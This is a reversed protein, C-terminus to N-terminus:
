HFCQLDPPNRDIWHAKTFTQRHEGVVALVSAYQHKRLSPSPLSYCTRMILPVYSRLCAMSGAPPRCAEVFGAIADSCRDVTPEGSCPPRVRHLRGPPWANALRATSSALVCWRPTPRLEALGANWPKQIAPESDLERRPPSARLDVSRCVRRTSALNASELASNIPYRLPPVTSACIGVRASIRSIAHSCSPTTFVTASCTGSCWDFGSSCARCPATEVPSSCVHLLPVAATAVESHHSLLSACTMARRDARPGATSLTQKSAM